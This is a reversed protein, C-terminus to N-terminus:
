SPGLPRPWHAGMQWARHMNRRYMVVFRVDQLLDLNEEAGLTLSTVRHPTFLLIQLNTSSTLIRHFVRFIRSVNFSLRTLQPLTALGAMNDAEFDVQFYDRMDLHTLHSFNPQTFDVSPPPTLFDIPKYEFIHWLSISLRRLPLSHSDPMLGGYVVLDVVGCCASLITKIDTTSIFTSHHPVFNLYRFAHRQLSPRPSPNSPPFSSLKPSFLTAKLQGSSYSQETCSLNLGPVNNLSHLPIYSFINFKHVWWTVLM